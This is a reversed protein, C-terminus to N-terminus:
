KKIGLEEDFKGEIFFKDVIKDHLIKTRLAYFGDVPVEKTNDIVKLELPTAIDDVWNKGIDSSPIVVLKDKLENKKILDILEDKVWGNTSGAIWDTDVNLKKSMYNYYNTTFPDLLVILKIREQVKKPMMNYARIVVQNGLSHCVLYIDKQYNTETVFLEIEDSLNKPLLPWDKPNEKLNKELLPLNQSTEYDDAISNYEQWDFVSTNFDAQRKKFEAIMAGGGPVNYMMSIMIAIPGLFFGPGTMISHTTWGFYGVGQWGHVYIFTDRTSDFLIEKKNEKIYKGNQDKLSSWFLHGKANDDFERLLVPERKGDKIEYRDSLCGIFLFFILFILFFNKM